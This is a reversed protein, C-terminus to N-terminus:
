PRSTKAFGKAKLHDFLCTTGIAQGCGWDIVELKENFVSDPINKFADQLKAQHMKGFSYLYMCMQEHSNLLATGRKLQYYLNDKQARSLHSLEGVALKRIANFSPNNLSSIHENYSTM